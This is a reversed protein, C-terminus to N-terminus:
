NPSAGASSVNRGKTEEEREDRTRRPFTEGVFWLWRSMETQRCRRTTGKEGTLRRCPRWLVRIAERKM